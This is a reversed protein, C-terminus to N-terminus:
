KKLRQTTFLIYLNVVFNSRKLNFLVDRNKNVVERLAGALRTSGEMGLMSHDVAVKLM